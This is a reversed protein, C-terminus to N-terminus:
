NRLRGCILDITQFTMLDMRLQTLAFMASYQLPSQQIKDQCYQIFTQLGRQFWSRMLKLLETPRFILKTFNVCGLGFALSPTERESENNENPCACFEYYM